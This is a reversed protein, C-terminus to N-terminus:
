DGTETIKKYLLKSLNKLMGLLSTDSLITEVLEFATDAVEILDKYTQYEPLDSEVTLEPFDAVYDKLNKQWNFFRVDIDPFCSKVFEAM